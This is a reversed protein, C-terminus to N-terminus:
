SATSPATWQTPKIGLMSTGTIIRSKMQREDAAFFLHSRCACDSCGFGAVSDLQRSLARAITCEIRDRSQCILVSKIAAHRLLYDIHWHCKKDARLHRRLRADFGKMASGVYAYSGRYFLRNKLKGVAIPQDQQLEMILIYSGKM